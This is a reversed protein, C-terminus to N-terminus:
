FFAASPLVKGPIEQTQIGTETKRFATRGIGVGGGTVSVSVAILLGVEGSALSDTAITQFASRM